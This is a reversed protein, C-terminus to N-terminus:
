VHHYFSALSSFSTSLHPFLVDVRENLSTVMDKAMNAAFMFMM